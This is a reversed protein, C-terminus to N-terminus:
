CDGYQETGEKSSIVKTDSERLASELEAVRLSTNYAAIEQKSGQRSACVYVWIRQFILAM